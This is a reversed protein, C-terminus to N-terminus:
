LLVVEVLGFWVSFFIVKCSFICFFSNGWRGKHGLPCLPWSYASWTSFQLLHTKHFFLYLIYTSNYSSFQCVLSPYTSVYIYQHILFFVWPCLIHCKPYILVFLVSWGAPFCKLTLPCLLYSMLTTIRSLTNFSSGDYRLSCSDWIM